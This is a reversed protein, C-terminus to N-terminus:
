GKIYKKFLNLMNSDDVMSIIYTKSSRIQSAAKCLPHTGDRDDILSYRCGYRVFLTSTNLDSSNMHPEHLIDIININNLEIPSMIHVHQITWTPKHYHYYIYCKDQNLKATTPIYNDDKILFTSMPRRFISSPINDITVDYCHYKQLGISRMDNDSPNDNISKHKNALLVALKNSVMTLKCVTLLDDAIDLWLEPILDYM